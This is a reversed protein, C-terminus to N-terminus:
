DLLCVTFVEVYMLTAWSNNAIGPSFVTTHEHTRTVDDHSVCLGVNKQFVDVIRLLLLTVYFFFLILSYSIDLYYSTFCKQSITTTTGAVEEFCLITLSYNFIQKLSPSTYNLKKWRPSTKKSRM